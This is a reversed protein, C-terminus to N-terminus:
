HRRPTKRPSCSTWGAAALVTTPRASRKAPATAIAVREVTWGALAPHQAMLADVHGDFRPLCFWQYDGRSNILAAVTGNGVIGLDLGSM